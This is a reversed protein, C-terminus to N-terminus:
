FDEQSAPAVSPPFLAGLLLLVKVGQVGLGYFAEGYWVVSLFQFIILLGDYCASLLPSASTDSVKGWFFPHPWSVLGWYDLVTFVLSWLLVAPPSYLQNWFRLVAHLSLSGCGVSASASWAATESFVSSFVFL